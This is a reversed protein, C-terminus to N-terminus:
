DILQAFIDGDEAAAAKRATDVNHLKERLDLARFYEVSLHKAFNAAAGYQKAAEAWRLAREADEALTIRRNYEDWDTTIPGKM